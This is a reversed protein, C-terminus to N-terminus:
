LSLLRIERQRGPEVVVKVGAGVALCMGWAGRRDFGLKRNAELVQCQSTLAIPVGGANYVVLPASGDRWGGSVADEEAVAAARVPMSWLRRGCPTLTAMLTWWESRRWPSRARLRRRARHLSEATASM